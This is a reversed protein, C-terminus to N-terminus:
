SRGYRKYAASLPDSGSPKKIYVQYNKGEEFPLSVLTESGDLVTSYTYQNTSIDRLKVEIGALNAADDYFKIEVREYSSGNFYTGSGITTNDGYCTFNYWWFDDKAAAAVENAAIPTASFLRNEQVEDTVNAASVSSLPLSLALVTGGVLTLVKKKLM